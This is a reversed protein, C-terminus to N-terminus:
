DDWSWGRNGLQVWLDYDEPHSRIYILGNIWSLEGIM